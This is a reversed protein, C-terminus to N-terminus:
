LNAGRSAARSTRGKNRGQRRSAQTLVEYNKEARGPSDLIKGENPWSEKKWIRELEDCVIIM